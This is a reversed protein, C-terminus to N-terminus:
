IEGDRYWTSITDKILGPVLATTRNHGCDGLYSCIRWVLHEELNVKDEVCHSQLTHQLSGWMLGWPWGLSGFQLPKLCTLAFSISWKPSISTGVRSPLVGVLRKEPPCEHLILKSGFLCSPALVLFLPYSNLDTWATPYSSTLQFQPTSKDGIDGLVPALM